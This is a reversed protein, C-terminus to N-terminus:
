KQPKGFLNQLLVPHNTGFSTFDIDKDNEVSAKFLRLDM